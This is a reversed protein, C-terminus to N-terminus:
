TTGRPSRVSPVAARVHSMVQAFRALNDHAQAATMTGFVLTAEFYNVPAASLQALIADTVTEVSGVLANGKAMMNDLDYSADFATNDHEHWLRLLDSTFRTGADRFLDLAADDTEGVVVSASPGVRLPHPLAAGPIVAEWYARAVEALQGSNWRGALSIGNSAAWTSSSANTSAYWLAPRPHQVPTISLPVQEGDATVYAGTEFTECLSALVRHYEPMRQPADVGFFSLEFPSIGAGVGVDVRGETLRDLTAIEEALRLPHYMPLVYVLAGIRMTRTRQALAALFLNPSPCVSLPTGHHETVHYHDIGAAEAAVAFDLRERLVAGPDKGGRDFSDFVGFAIDTAPGACEHASDVPTM